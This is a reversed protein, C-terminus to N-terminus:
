GELLKEISALKVCLVFLDTAQALEERAPFSPAIRIVSDHPDKGYPFPAGAGTLTVGAEKCKRVINTACGEMAEFTIFYGGKPRVWNGIGLGGLERELVDLVAEFKPRLIDAHKKMHAKVAEMSNFYRAHRLQNIKDYCITRIAISKKISELNRQSAAMAAIGAGAMSIKSTSGFVYVMDPHGAKECESLIDLIEDQDEEYLHHM